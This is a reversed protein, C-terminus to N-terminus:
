KINYQTYRTRDQNSSVVKLIVDERDM